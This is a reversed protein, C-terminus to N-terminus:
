KRKRPIAPGQWTGNSDRKAWDKPQKPISTSPPKKPGGQRAPDEDDYKTWDALKDIEALLERHSKQAMNAHRANEDEEKDLDHSCKVGELNFIADQEAVKGAHEHAEEQGMGQSIAQEYANEYAPEVANEKCAECDAADRAAMKRNAMIVGPRVPIERAVYMDATDSALHQASGLATINWVKGCSCTKYSPAAIKQGCSCTFAKGEKSIYGALHDDWKWDPVRRTFFSAEKTPEWEGWSGRKTVPNKAKTVSPKPNSKVANDGPPHSIGLEKHLKAAGGPGVSRQSVFGEAAIDGDGFNLGKEQQQQQWRQFREMVGGKSELRRGIHGGPM